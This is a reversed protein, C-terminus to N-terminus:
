ADGDAGLLELFSKYAYMHDRTGGLERISHMSLVPSGIDITEISTIASSMPGITSGGREDSHNVFKQVPIGAKRCLEQYRAIGELESAYTKRSSIKVAPGGNVVPRNTPDHKDPYNPHLAHAMDGSIMFSKGLSILFEARSRNLAIAIRELIDRFLMSDAGFRTNSGIEENNFCVIMNIGARCDSDLLAKLGLHAMGLNDIKGVSMFESETGVLCGKEHEYLYLEFDAISDTDIGLKKSILGLLYGEKEFDKEITRLLPILEKQKSIKVGENVKPNMHISLNPIICLPERFDVLASSTRRGEPERIMIKGALSLPRDFWTNLIPGGYVECNLKLYKGESAMEPNPKVVLAPSDIHSALIKFGQKEIDESGIRFGVVMNDDINLFCNDGAELNWAQDMELKKFGNKLLRGEINRAAHYHTPSEAAFDIFDLALTKEVNM